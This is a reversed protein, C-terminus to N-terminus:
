LRVGVGLSGDELRLLLFGASQLRLPTPTHCRRYFCFGVVLYISIPCLIETNVHGLVAMLGCGPTPLAGVRPM